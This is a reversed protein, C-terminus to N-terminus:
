HTSGVFFHLLFTSQVAFHYTFKHLPKASPETLAGMYNTEIIKDEGILM